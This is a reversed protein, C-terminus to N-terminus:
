LDVVLVAPQAIAAITGVTDVAGITITDTCRFGVVLVPFDDRHIVEIVRHGTTVAANKGAHQFTM